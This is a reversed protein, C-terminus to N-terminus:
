PACCHNTRLLTRCETIRMELPLRALTITAPFALDQTKPQSGPAAGQPRANNAADTLEPADREDVADRFFKGVSGGIPPNHRLTHLSVHRGQRAGAAGVDVFGIDQNAILAKVELPKNQLVVALLPQGAAVM